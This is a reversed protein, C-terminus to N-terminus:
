VTKEFKAKLREYEQRERKEKVTDLNIDEDPSELFKGMMLDCDYVWISIGDISSVKVEISRNGQKQWEILKSIDM